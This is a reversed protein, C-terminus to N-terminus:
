LSLYKWTRTRKGYMYEGGTRRSLGTRFLLIESKQDPGQVIYLGKKGDINLIM